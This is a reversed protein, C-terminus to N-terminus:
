WNVGQPILLTNLDEVKFTTDDQKGDDQNGTDGDPTKKNLNEFFFAKVKDVFVWEYGGRLKFQNAGTQLGLFCHSVEWNLVAGESAFLNVGFNTDVGAYLGLYQMLHLDGELGFNIGLRSGGQFSSNFNALGFSLYSSGNQVFSAQILRASMWSYSGAADRLEDFNFGYGM